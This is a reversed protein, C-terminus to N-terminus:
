RGCDEDQLDSYDASEGLSVGRFAARIQESDFGRYQLFRGQKAREAASRPPGAGFRKRRVESALDAWDVEASQLASDIGEVPLGQTRLEARIRMPGHGRLVHQRVASEAFRGDNLLGERRLTDLVARVPDAGFGKRELKRQLEASGYDRRTLIRLASLRLRKLTAAADDEIPDNLESRKM